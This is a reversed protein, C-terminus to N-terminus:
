RGRETKQKRQEPQPASRSTPKRKSKNRRETRIDEIEQRVSPKQAETKELRERDTNGSNQLTPASQPSPATRAETPNQAPFAERADDPKQFLEDFFSETSAETDRSCDTEPPSIDRTLEQELNREVAAVDVTFLNFREFIRNIKSADEERVMIDTLGDSADRDKLVCYLVGYKKAEKCFLQLDGDRVSFVKLPKDSRLMNALRTHGRSKQSDRLAAAILVALREAGQGSIKAAVEVGNLTMRVVQEAAEGSTNM